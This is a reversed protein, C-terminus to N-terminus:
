QSPIGDFVPDSRAADVAAQRKVVSKRVQQLLVYYVTTMVIGWAMGSWALMRFSYNPIGAVDSSDLPQSTWARCLNTSACKIPQYAFVLWYISVGVDYLAHLIVWVQAAIVGGVAGGRSAHLVACFAVFPTVYKLAVMHVLIYNVGYRSADRFAADDVPEIYYPVNTHPFMPEFVFVFTGLIQGFIATIIAFMVIGLIGLALLYRGYDADLPSGSTPRRTPKTQASSGGNQGVFTGAGPHQMAGAHYMAGTQLDKGDDDGLSLWTGDGGVVGSVVPFGM